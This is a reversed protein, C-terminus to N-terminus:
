VIKVKNKKYGLDLDNKTMILWKVTHMFRWFTSQPWLGFLCYLGYFVYQLLLSERKFFVGSLLCYIIVLLSRVLVKECQLCCDPYWSGVENSANKHFNSKVIFLECLFSPISTCIHLHNCCLVSVHLNQASGAIDPFSRLYQLHKALVDTQFLLCM